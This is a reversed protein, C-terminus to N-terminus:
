ERKTLLTLQQRIAEANNFKLLSQGLSKFTIM